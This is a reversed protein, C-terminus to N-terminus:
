VMLFHRHLPQLAATKLAPIPATLAKADSVERRHLRIAEEVLKAVSPSPLVDSKLKVNPCYTDVYVYYEEGRYEYLADRSGDRRISFPFLRCAIPKLRNQLMCLNKLQFPCRNGVKKIYFRGRREEVFGTPKLKLYEYANLKVKYATCCRGCANCHWSAVRKWPVRM